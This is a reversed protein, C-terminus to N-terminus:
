LRARARGHYALAGLTADGVAQAAALAATFRTEAETFLQESTLEPGVDIAASCFAEGLLLLSLGAFNSARAILATRGPVQEDTWA